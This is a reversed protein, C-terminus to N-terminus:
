RRASTPRDAIDRRPFRAHDSAPSDIENERLGHQLVRRVERAHVGLHAAPQFWAADHTVLDIELGKAHSYLPVAVPRARIWKPAECRAPAPISEIALWM